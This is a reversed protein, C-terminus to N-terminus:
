EQEEVEKITIEPENSLEKHVERLLNYCANLKGVNGATPAVELQQLINFVQALKEKM